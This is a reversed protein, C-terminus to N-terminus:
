LSVFALLAGVCVIKNGGGCGFCFLFFEMVSNVKALWVCVRTGSVGEEGMKMPFILDLIIPTRRGVICHMSIIRNRGLTDWGNRGMNMNVRPWCQMYM